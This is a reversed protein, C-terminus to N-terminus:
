PSREKKPPSRLNLLFNEIGWTTVASGVEQDPNEPMLEFPLADAAVAAAKSREPNVPPSRTWRHSQLPTGDRTKCVLM